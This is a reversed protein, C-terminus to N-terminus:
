SKVLDSSPKLDTFGLSAYTKILYDLVEGVCLSDENRLFKTQEWTDVLVPDGLMSDIETQLHQLCGMAQQSNFNQRFLEVVNKQCRVLLLRVHDSDVQGSMNGLLFQQCKNLFRKTDKLQQDVEEMAEISFEIDAYWANNACLLRMHDATYQELFNSVQVVNGLSKSMKKKEGAMKLHGCHFFYNCWQETDHYAECQKIECEHHPFALDAGGTHVDLSDGFFLTSATSCEIHWGPRGNGWPAEWYPDGPKTAKWLCFDQSHRKDIMQENYGDANNEWADLPAVLHGVPEIVSHNFWVNGEGNKGVYASGNSLLEDIFSIIQPIMESVKAYSSPPKVNLQEMDRQFKKEYHNALSLFEQGLLKARNIIKDDVDTIGMVLYINMGFYEELIRRIIDFNVYSSAHGIHTNDYVTPGCAYWKILDKNHVVFPVLKKKNKKNQKLCGYSNLVRVGTDYGKPPQWQFFKKKPKSAFTRLQILDTNCSSCNLAELRVLNTLPKSIRRVFFKM